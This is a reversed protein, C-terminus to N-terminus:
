PADIWRAGNIKEGSYKVDLQTTYQHNIYSVCYTPLKESVVSINRQECEYQPQDTLYNRTTTNGIKCTYVSVIERNSSNLSGTDCRGAGNAIDSKLKTLAQDPDVLPCINLFNLRKRIEKSKKEDTISFYRSLAPSCEGPRVGSSLCLMAECSLKTDGTFEGLDAAQVPFAAYIAAIICPFHKIKM